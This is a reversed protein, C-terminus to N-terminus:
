VRKEAKARVFWLVQFETQALDTNTPKAFVQFHPHNRKGRKRKLAKLNRKVGLSTDVRSVIGILAILNQILNTTLPSRIRFDKKQM